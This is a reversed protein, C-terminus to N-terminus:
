IINTLNRTIEDNIWNLLDSKIQDVDRSLEIVKYGIDIFGRNKYFVEIITDVEVNSPYILILINDMDIYYPKILDIYDCIFFKVESYTMNAICIESNIEFFELLEENMSPLLESLIEDETSGLNFTNLYINEYYGNYHHEIAIITSIEDSYVDVRLDRNDNYKTQLEKIKNLMADKIKDLM